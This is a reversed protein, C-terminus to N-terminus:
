NWKASPSKASAMEDFSNKASPVNQRISIRQISIQRIRKESDDMEGFDVSCKTVFSDYELPKDFEELDIIDESLTSM